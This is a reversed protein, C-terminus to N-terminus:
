EQSVGDGDDPMEETKNVKKTILVIGGITGAAILVVIALMGEVSDFPQWPKSYSGSSGQALTLVFIVVVCLLSLM